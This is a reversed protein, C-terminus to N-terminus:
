KAVRAQSVMARTLDLERGTRIRLRHSQGCRYFPACGQLREHQMQAVVELLGWISRAVVGEKRLGPVRGERLYRVGMEEKGSM